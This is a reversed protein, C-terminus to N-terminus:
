GLVNHEIKEATLCGCFLPKLGALRGNTLNQSLNM